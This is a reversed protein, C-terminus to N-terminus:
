VGMAVHGAHWMQSAPVGCGVHVPVVPILKSLGVQAASARGVVGVVGGAQAYALHPLFRGVEDFLANVEAAELDVPPALARLPQLALRQMDHVVLLADGEYFRSGEIRPAAVRRWRLENAILNAVM